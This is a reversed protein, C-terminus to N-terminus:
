VEEGERCGFIDIGEVMDMAICARTIIASNGGEAGKAGALPILPRLKRREGEAANAGISPALPRLRSTAVTRVMAESPSLEDRSLLLFFLLPTYARGEAAISRPEPNKM